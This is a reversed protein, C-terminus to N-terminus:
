RHQGYVLPLLVASLQQLDAPEVPKVAALLEKLQGSTRVGAVVSTVAPRQLVYQLAMQQPPYSSTLEKLAQQLHQVDRVNHGLYEKAPKNILLGQALAGRVLVGKHHEELLPLVTEEPRRDLLSYQLMVSEISSRNVYEGIVNPRISSIGYERIKGQQKLTEFADITDDIDDEITGGHLQYLDIYDTGLRKLSQEACSLIYDRRPNWDWGSGDARWQNGAKTALFIHKRYPKLAQGVLKENEGKEYLDATDFFNIGAAIAEEILRLGEEKATSDLSMCGFGLVSVSFGTSGLVRYEM